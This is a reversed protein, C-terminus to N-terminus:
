QDNKSPVAMVSSIYEGAANQNQLTWGETVSIVNWVNGSKRSVEVFLGLANEFDKCVESVTRNNDISIKQPTNINNLNKLSTNPDVTISRVSKSLKDPRLFEIKLFPFHTTFTNQINIVVSESTILIENKNNNM